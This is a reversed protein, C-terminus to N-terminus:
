GDSNWKLLLIKDNIREDSHRELDEADADEVIGVVWQLSHESMDQVEKKDLKSKMQQFMRVWDDRIVVLARPLSAVDADGMAPSM